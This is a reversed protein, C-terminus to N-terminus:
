GKKGFYDTGQATEKYEESVQRRIEQHMDRYPFHVRNEEKGYTKAGKETFQGKWLINLTNSGINTQKM